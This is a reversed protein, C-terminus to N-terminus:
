TLQLMNILSFQICSNQQGPAHASFAESGDMHCWRPHSPRAASGSATPWLASRCFGHIAFHHSRCMNAANQHPHQAAQFLLLPALTPRFPIVSVWPVLFICM